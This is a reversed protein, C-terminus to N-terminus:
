WLNEKIWQDATSAGKWDKEFGNKGGQYAGKLTECGNLVLSVIIIILIKLKPSM